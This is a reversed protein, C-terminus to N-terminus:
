AAIDYEHILGGLLDRREIAPPDKGVAHLPQQPVPADMGLARHPRHCNYHAVYVRLTQQLHKRSGILMRDLCERRVSGVWREAFANAQPAGVPTRIIKIGEADFVEDFSAGFKNDHDHIVFSFQRGRDELAMTLNRAQQAAWASSPKATIGALYVRRSSLEIFFLVYLRRLLVTDVTFFDCALVGQVHSRLFASWTPGTRRPSPDIGSEKLIAWVTSPAAHVGLRRLEGTIRRYGWTANESALRRVLTRLGRRRPRGRRGGYSWRRKVLQRHWVLLTEPRVFFVPWRARPLMRSLGALVVRDASGLEPRAVQRRLVTVQHRLVLIELEKADESACLLVLFELVRRLAWYVCSVVAIDFRKFRM